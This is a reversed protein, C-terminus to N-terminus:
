IIKYIIKNIDRDGKITSMVKGTQKNVLNKGKVTLTMDSFHLDVGQMMNLQQQGYPSIRTASIKGTTDRFFGEM